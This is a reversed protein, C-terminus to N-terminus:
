GYLQSHTGILSLEVVTSELYIYIVRVDGSVNFSWYGQYRGVLPHNRLLPHNPNELWLVLRQNFQEQVKAPLKKYQKVFDKSQRLLM